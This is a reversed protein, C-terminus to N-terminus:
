PFDSVHNLSVLRGSERQEAPMSRQVAFITVATGGGVFESARRCRAVTTM